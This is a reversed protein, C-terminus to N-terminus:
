VCAIEIQKRTYNGPFFLVLPKKDLREQLNNLLEHSRILPHALGVGTIFVVSDEPKVKSVILDVLTEKKILPALKTKVESPTYKADVELVKDLLCRSEFIEILVDFLNVEAIKLDDRQAYRNKLTKIHSRVTLEEEPAYDFVYFGIENGINRNALFDPSEIRQSIQNLRDEIRM